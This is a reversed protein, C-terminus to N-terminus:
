RAPTLHDLEALTVRDNVRDRDLLATFSPDHGGLRGAIKDTMRRQAELALGSIETDDAFPLLAVRLQALHFAEDIRDEVDRYGPEVDAVEQFGTYATRPRGAALSAEARRYLIAAAARQAAADRRALMPDRALE